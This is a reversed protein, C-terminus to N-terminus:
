HHNEPKTLEHLVFLRIASSLNEGERRKADITTVLRAVPIERNQAIDCLGQWFPEELSFSTRHGRISISHKRVLSGSKTL